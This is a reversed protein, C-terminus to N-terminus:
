TLYGIALCLVVVSTLILRLRMWWLPALARTSFVWDLALLGIFGLGLNRISDLNSPSLSFIHPQCFFFAYLAPIVSLVYGLPADDSPAQAAFGWLVGSMFCLIVTGYATLIAKADSPYIAAFQGPPLDPEPSLALGAAFLFPLLGALGLWLATRPITTM